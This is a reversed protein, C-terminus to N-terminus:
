GVREDPREVAKRRGRRVRSGLRVSLAALAPLLMSLIGGATHAVSAGGPPPPLPLSGCGIPPPNEGESSEVIEIERTSARAGASDAVTVLVKGVKLATLKGASDVTAVDADSTSWSLQGTAGVVSFRFSSSPALSLKSPWIQFGQKFQTLALNANLDGSTSISELYTDRAVVANLIANRLDLASLGSNVSLILAGVGAVMPTAMSTGSLTKWSGNPFTSLVDSGPAVLDVSTRGYNSFSSLSGDAASSAVSIVGESELCSPYNPTQDTNSSDNGAAAIFLTGKSYAFDIADKLAQSADGGGWSANILRAGNKAAYLITEIGGETSGSGQADLFRVAMIRVNWNVGAVGISNNGEAGIIGAVHTGHGHLDQPDADGDSFDWGWTDDIKGNQDDDIGNGAIEGPNNWIQNALDPHVRDVGTDSVAVIVADSGKSIEWAEQVNTRQMQTQQSFMPDNPTAVPGTELPPTSPHGELAQLKGNAEAYLVEKSKKLRELGRDSFRKPDKAEAVFVRIEAFHKKFLLDNKELLALAAGEDVADRFRVLYSASTEAASTTGAYVGLVLQLGVIWRTKKNKFIM